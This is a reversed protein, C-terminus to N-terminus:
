IEFKKYFSFDLWLNDVQAFLPQEMANLQTRSMSSPSLATMFQFPPSPHHVVELEADSTIVMELMGSHISDQGSLVEWRSCGDHCAVHTLAPYTAENGHKWTTSKAMSPYRQMEAWAARQVDYKRCWGDNNLLYIIQDRAVVKVGAEMTCVAEHTRVKRTEANYFHIYQIHSLSRHVMTSSKITVLTSDCVTWQTVPLDLQDGEVSAVKNFTRCDDQMEFYHQQTLFTGDPQSERGMSLVILKRGVKIPIVSRVPAANTHSSFIDHCELRFWTNTLTNYQLGVAHGLSFMYLCSDLFAIRWAHKELMVGPIPLDLQPGRCWTGMEIDYFSLELKPSRVLRMGEDTALLQTAMEAMPALVVLIKCENKQFTASCSPMVVRLVNLSSAPVRELTVSMRITDDSEATDDAERVSTDDSERIATDDAERVLTHDSERVATDDSERIPTDDAERLATDDDSERIATDDDSERICSPLEKVVQSISKITTLKNWDLFSIKKVTLKAEIPVVKSHPNVELLSAFWKKLKEPACTTCLGWKFTSDKVDDFYPTPIYQMDNLDCEQNCCAIVLFFDVVRILTKKFLNSRLLKEYCVLHTGTKLCVCDIVTAHDSLHFELTQVCWFLESVNASVCSLCSRRWARMFDILRPKWRELVQPKTNFLACLNTCTSELRADMERIVDTNTEMAVTHLKELVVAINKLMFELIQLPNCQHFINYTMFATLMDMDAELVEQQYIFYDHFRFSLFWKTDNILGSSHLRFQLALRFYLMATGFTLTSEMYTEICHRLTDHMLYDALRLLGELWDPDLDIENTYLSHIVKELARVDCGVHTFDAKTLSQSLDSFGFSTKFYECTAALVCKHAKVESGTVVITFDCLEGSERMLALNTGLTSAGAVPDVQVIM